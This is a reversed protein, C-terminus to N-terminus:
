FLSQQRQLAKYNKINSKSMWWNFYEDATAFLRQELPKKDLFIQLSSLLKDRMKPYRETYYIIQKKKSFPCFICGVRGAQDYCPNIPLGNDNIFTWIDQETWQLLPYIMVKDKGKICRHENAEMQELTRTVRDRHEKRSSHIAVEAYAGRKRSEDARVGTLVAYGAGFSEKLEACCFRHLMTPLGKKEVIKYFNRKPHLFTVDPNHSRIFYVNEPPDITTVSYYAKHRVGAMKVLELLVQSDKGGSFGVFYGEDNLALALKEGKRILEISAQIKNDIM